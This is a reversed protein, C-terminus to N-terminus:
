RELFILHWKTQPMVARSEVIMKPHTPADHQLANHDISKSDAELRYKEHM